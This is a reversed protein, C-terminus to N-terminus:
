NTVISPQHHKESLITIYLKTHTRANTHVTHTCTKGVTLKLQSSSRQMDNAGSCCLWRMARIQVGHCSIIRTVWITANISCGWPGMLSQAGHIMLGSWQKILAWAKTQVTYNDENLLPNNVFVERALRENYTSIPMQFVISICAHVM